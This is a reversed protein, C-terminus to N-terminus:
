SRGLRTVRRSRSVSGSSTVCLSRCARDCTSTTRPWPQATVTSSVATRARRRGIRYPRPPCSLPPASNKLAPVQHISVASAITRLSYRSNPSRAQFALSASAQSQASWASQTHPTRPGRKTLPEFVGFERRKRRFGSRYSEATLQSGVRRSFGKGATM